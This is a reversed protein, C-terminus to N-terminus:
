LLMENGHVLVYENETATYYYWVHPPKFRCVNIECTRLDPIQPHSMATDEAPNVILIIALVPNEDLPKALSFNEESNVHKNAANLEKCSALSLVETEEQPQKWNREMHDEGYYTYSM